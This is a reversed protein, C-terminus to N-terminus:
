LALALCPRFGNTTNPGGYSSFTGSTNVLWVYGSTGVTSTWYQAIVGNLKCIRNDQVSFYSWGSNVQSYTPPFIKATVGDQTISKMVALAAESMNKEFNAAVTALTSGKYKDNSGFVTNTVIVTSALYAVRNVYDTHAVIWYMGDFEVTEGSILRGSITGSGFSGPTTSTGSGAIGIKKEVMKDLIEEATLGSIKSINSISIEQGM